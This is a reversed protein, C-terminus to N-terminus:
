SWGHSTKLALTDRIYFVRSFGRDEKSVTPALKLSTGISQLQDLVDKAGSM